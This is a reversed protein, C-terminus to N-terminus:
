ARSREFLGMNSTLLNPSFGFGVTITRIFSFPLRPRPAPDGHPGDRRGRREDDRNM